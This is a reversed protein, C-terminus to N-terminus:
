MYHKLNLPAFKQLAMFAKTYGIKLVATNGVTAMGHCIHGYEIKLPWSNKKRWPWGYQVEFLAFHPWIQSKLFNQCFNPRKCCIKPWKHCIRTKKSFNKFVKVKSWFNSFYKKSVKKFNELIDNSLFAIFLWNKTKSNKWFSNTFKKRWNSIKEFITAYFHLLFQFYPWFENFFHGYQPWIQSFLQGYHGHIESSKAMNSKWFNPVSCFLSGWFQIFWIEFM